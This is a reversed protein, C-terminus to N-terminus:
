TAAAVAGGLYCAVEQRKSAYRHDLGQGGNVLHRAV